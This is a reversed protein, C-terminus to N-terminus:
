PDMSDLAGLMRNAFAETIKRQAATEAGYDGGSGATVGDPIPGPARATRIGLEALIDRQQRQGAEYAAQFQALANAEIQALIAEYKPAYQTVYFQLKTSGEPLSKLFVYDALSLGPLPENALNLTELSQTLFGRPAYIRKRIAEVYEKAEYVKVRADSGRFGFSAGGPVRGGLAKETFSPHLGYFEPPVYGYPAPLFATSVTGRTVRISAPGTATPKAETGTFLNRLFSQAAPGGPANAKYNLANAGIGIGAAKLSATLKDHQAQDITAQTPIPPATLQRPDAM